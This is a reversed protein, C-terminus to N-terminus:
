YRFWRNFSLAGGKVETSRPPPSFFSPSNDMTEKRKVYSSIGSMSLGRRNQQGHHHQHHHTQISEHSLPPAKTALQRPCRNVEQMVQSGWWRRQWMRTTTMMMVLVVIIFRQKRTNLVTSFCNFPISALFNMRIMVEAPLDSKQSMCMLASHFVCFNSIDFGAPLNYVM